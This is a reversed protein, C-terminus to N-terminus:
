FINVYKPEAGFGASFCAARRGGWSLIKVQAASLCFFAGRSFVLTEALEELLDRLTKRAKAL